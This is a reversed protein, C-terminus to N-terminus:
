GVQATPDLDPDTQAVANECSGKGGWLAQYATGGISGPYLAILTKPCVHRGIQIYDSRVALLLGRETGVSHFPLLSFATDGIQYLNAMTEEPPLAESLIQRTQLDMIEKIADVETILVSSGDVPNRLTNGTDYLARVRCTRGGLSVTIEMIEGKGFRAQQRFLLELLLYFLIASGILVWWSINATYVQRFLRNPEGALLGIALLLGALAGSLLFFLAVHRWLRKQGVFSITPLLIGVLIRFVIAQLMPFVFVAVAYGGGFLAAAVLRWRHRIAGILQATTLLLLYDIVANLIWVRDVYIVPM